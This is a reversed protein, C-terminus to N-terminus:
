VLFESATIIKVRAFEKLKLLHPDGSILCNANGVIATELIANDDPDDVIVKVKGTIEVMTAIELIISIFTAKQEETFNFKPYDM